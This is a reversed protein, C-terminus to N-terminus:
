DLNVLNPSNEGMPRTNVKPLTEFIVFTAFFNKTKKERLLLLANIKVFFPNFQKQDIKKM